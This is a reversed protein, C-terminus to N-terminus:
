LDRAWSRLMVERFRKVNDRINHDNLVCATIKRLATGPACARLAKVLATAVVEPPNCFAGCGIASVVLHQAGSIKTAELVGRWTAELERPLAPDRNAAGENNYRRAAATVVTLQPPQALPAINTTRDGRWM